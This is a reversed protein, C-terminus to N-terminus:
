ILRVVPRRLTVVFVIENYGANNAKYHNIAARLIESGNHSGFSPLSTGIGDGSDGVNEEM